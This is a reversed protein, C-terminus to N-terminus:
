ACYGQGRFVRFASFLDFLRSTVRGEEASAGYRGASYQVAFTHAVLLLVVNGVMGLM